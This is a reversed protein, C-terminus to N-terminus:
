HACARFCALFEMVRQGARFLVFHHILVQPLGLDARDYPNVFSESHTDRRRM